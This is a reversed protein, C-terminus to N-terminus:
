RGGIMRGGIVSRDTRISHHARQGLSDFTRKGDTLAARVRTPLAPTTQAPPGSVFNDKKTGM